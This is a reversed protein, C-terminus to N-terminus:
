IRRARCSTSSQASCNPGHSQQPKGAGESSARETPEGESTTMLDSDSEYSLPQPAFFYLFPCFCVSGVYFFFFYSLLFCFSYACSLVCFFYHCSFLERSACPEKKFRKDFVAHWPAAKLDYKSIFAYPHSHAFLGFLTTANCRMNSLCHPM